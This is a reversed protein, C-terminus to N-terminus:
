IGAKDQRVRATDLLFGTNRTHQAYSEPIRRFSRLRNLDPRIHKGPGPAFPDPRPHVLPYVRCCAPSVTLIKELNQLSTDLDKKLTEVSGISGAPSVLVRSLWCFLDFGREGFGVPGVPGVSRM